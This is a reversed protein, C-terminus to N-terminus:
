SADGNVESPYLKQLYGRAHLVLLGSIELPMVWAWPHCSVRLVHLGAFRVPYGAVRCRCPFELRTERTM